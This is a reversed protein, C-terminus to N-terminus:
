GRESIHDVGVSQGGADFGAIQSYDEGRATLFAIRTDKVEDMERLRACTEVGDMEPMRIDMGAIRKIKSALTYNIVMDAAINYSKHDKNQKQGREGHARFIHMAEHAFLLLMEGLDYTLTTDSPNAAYSKKFMTKKTLLNYM